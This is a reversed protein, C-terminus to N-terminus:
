TAANVLGDYLGELKEVQKVVDYEKEVHERGRRGMEPWLEPHLLLFELREALAEVDREPVLFGSEGDLVVEPIDCHTTSLIPMGAASMEIITVPAGGETDGDAAHVSPSMFIHHQRAEELLVRYPQYGLLRVRSELGYRAIAGLIRQKEAEERPAGGSDGIITMHLEIEPHAQAVRGFAEVAYPIGKKERFSGSVLVRVVGDPPPLRPVFEIKELDVGLHNVVVKEAPCGLDVLVQKMHPGEVLFLDGGQFLERYRRRWEPRQRPLMSLDYGYFSSVLPIGLKRRFRLFSYGAPGFHAHVLAPRDRRLWRGLTPYYHFVKHWARDLFLRTRGLRERMARLNEAPFQDLNMTRKTYIIPRYRRLHRIQAYIWTETQPLYVDVYHVVKPCAIQEM